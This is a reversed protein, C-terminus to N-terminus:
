PPELPRFQDTRRLLGHQDHQANIHGHVFKYLERSLNWASGSANSGIHGYQFPGINYTARRQVGTDCTCVFQEPFHWYYRLQESSQPLVVHLQVM